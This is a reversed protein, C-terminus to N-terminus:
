GTEWEVVGIPGRKEILVLLPFLARDLGIGAERIMAEDRQPRNM